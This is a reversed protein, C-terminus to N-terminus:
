FSQHTEFPLGCHFHPEDSKLAARLAVLDQRDELGAGSPSTWEALRDGM